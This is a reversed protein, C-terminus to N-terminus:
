LIWQRGPLHPLLMDLADQEVMERMLHKVESRVQPIEIIKIASYFTRDGSQREAKYVTGFTGEGIMETLVWSKWSEPLKIDIM